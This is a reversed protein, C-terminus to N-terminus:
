RIPLQGGLANLKGAAPRFGRRRGAEVRAGKIMKSLETLFRWGPDASKSEEVYQLAGLLDLSEVRGSPNARQHTRSDPSHWARM